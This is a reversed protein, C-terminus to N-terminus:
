RAPGTAPARLQYRGKPLVVGFECLMGRLANILGTREDVLAKRVRHVVLLGQQEESKITVFRMNPRAVAECIAEADNGDNKQSKRYPQVFQPAMIRAQHELRRLERAFHHAGSCAEVGVLCPELKTMVELLQERRVQRKLVSKGRQDVGHLNFVSKALDIAVTTIKM